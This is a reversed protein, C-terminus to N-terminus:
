ADGFADDEGWRESWARGHPGVGVAGSGGTHQARLAEPLHQAREPRVDEDREEERDPHGQGVQTGEVGGGRVVEGDPDDARGRGRLDERLRHGVPGVTGEDRVDDVVAPGGLLLDPVPLERRDVGRAVGVRREVDRGGGALGRGRSRLLHEHRDRELLVQREVDDVDDRGTGLVGGTLAQEEQQDAQADAPVRGRDGDGGEGRAQARHPGGDDSEDGRPTTAPM